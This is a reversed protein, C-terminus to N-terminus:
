RILRTQRAGDPGDADIGAFVSGSGNIDITLAAVAGHHVEQGGGNYEVQGHPAYIVGWTDCGAGNIRIAPDAAALSMAFLQDQYCSFRRTSGNFRITGGAVMTVRDLAVAGGSFCIDGTVVWLADHASFGSGHLTLNGNVRIRGSPLADAVVDGDYQRDWPGSDFQAWTYPVPYAATEAARIEGRVGRPDNIRYGHRFEVDGDILHGSGTIVVETNSHMTGRVTLNSGSCRIGDVGHRTDGAFLPGPGPGAAACSLATARRAVQAGSIGLAAAFGYRVGLRGIACVAYEDARLAGWDPLDDGPGYCALDATPNVAVPWGPTALANASVVAALRQTCEHRDPLERAGALAAADAVDQTRQAAIVTRSLDFVLAAVSLLTALAVAVWAGVVGTRRGPLGQPKM